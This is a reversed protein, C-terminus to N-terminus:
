VGEGLLASQPIPRGHGDKKVEEKRALYMNEDHLTPPEVSYKSMLYDCLDDISVNLLYDYECSELERIMNIQLNDLYERLSSNSFLLTM